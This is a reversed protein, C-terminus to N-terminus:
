SQPWARHHSRHGRHSYVSKGHNGLSTHPARSQLPVPLENQSRPCDAAGGDPCRAQRHLWTPSYGNCWLDRSLQHGGSDPGPRQENSGFLLTIDGSRSNVDGYLTSRTCVGAKEGQHLIPLSILSKPTQTYFEDVRPIEAASSVVTPQYTLPSRV